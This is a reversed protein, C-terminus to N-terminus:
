GLSFMDNTKAYGEESYPDTIGFHEKLTYPYTPITTKVWSPVMIKAIVEQIDRTFLITLPVFQQSILYKQVTIDTLLTSIPQFEIYESMDEQALFIEGIKTLIMLKSETKIDYEKSDSDYTYGYVETVYITRKSPCPLLRGFWFDSGMDDWIHCMIINTTADFQMDYGYDASSTEM